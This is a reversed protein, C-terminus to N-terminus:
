LLMRRADALVSSLFTTFRAGDAGDIVRHDYSLSLPLILRPTFEKGNWVPQMKARSVGLIVVEPSNVIPTFKTGGIGGLSSITVCGGQMDAPKLKKDRAKQSIEGLEAAIDVLSKCDVERVVPVVLGDATDVAVGVNFYKKFILNEGGADLSTNFRPFEKLGSVVAKMLFALLTIKVGKDKHEELMSKRFDELDTIDAEDFQTVHPVSVWNRHLFQGTLKNIKTLPKSVIEGWQSFDIAPMPAVALGGMGAGQALARKVFSQVDEKVIRGKRGSGQVQRLDVGLERAFKRLAPSAYAGSFSIKAFSAEDMRAAPAPRQQAEPVSAPKAAPAKAPAPKTQTTEKKAPEASAAAKGSPELLLILSGASVRDGVKVKIEKVIGDEPAPIEMVAKDSELSILSQEAVITDGASVLVEVVEVDTFDGIDPVVIEKSM